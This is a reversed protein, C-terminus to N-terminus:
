PQKKVDFLHSAYVFDTVYQDCSINLESAVQKLSRAYNLKNVATTSDVHMSANVVNCLFTVCHEGCTLAEPDQLQAVQMSIHLGHFPKLAKEHYAEGAILSCDFLFCTDYLVLVCFWHQGAPGGTNLVYCDGNKHQVTRKFTDVSGLYQLKGPFTYGKSTGTLCKHISKSDM